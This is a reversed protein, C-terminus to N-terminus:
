AFGPLFDREAEFLELTMQRIQAPTCVAATLPDLMLAHIATEISREMAARTALEYMYMHSACVAVMQTPLRRYRIPQVGTRDVMCAVTFNCIWGSM